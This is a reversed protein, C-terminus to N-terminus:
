SNLLLLNIQQKRLLFSQCHCHIRAITRAPFVIPLLNKSKNERGFSPLLCAAFCNCYRRVSRYGRICPTEEQLKKVKIKCFYISASALYSPCGKIAFLSSPFKNNFDQNLPNTNPIFLFETDKWTGHTPIASLSMMPQREKKLNKSFDFFHWFFTSLLQLGERHMYRAAATTHASM